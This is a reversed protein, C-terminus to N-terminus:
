EVDAPSDGCDKEIPVDAPLQRRRLFGRRRKKRDRSEYRLKIYPRRGDPPDETSLTRRELETVERASGDDDIWVYQFCDEELPRRSRMAIGVWVVYGGIIFVASGVVVAITILIDTM